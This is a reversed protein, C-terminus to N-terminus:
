SMFIVSCALQDLMKTEATVEIVDKFCLFQIRINKLIKKSSFNKLRWVEFTASSGQSGRIKM